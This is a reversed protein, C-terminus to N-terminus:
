DSEKSYEMMRKYLDRPWETLGIQSIESFGLLFNASCRKEPGSSAVINILVSSKRLRKVTLHYLLVDGLFSPKMFKAVIKMAPIGQRNKVVMQSFSFNLGNAFWDEIVETFLNFYQPTFVIGGPDCHQFRILKDTSFTKM